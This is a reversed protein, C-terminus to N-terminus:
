THPTPKPVITQLRPTANSGPQETTALHPTHNAYCNSSRCKCSRAIALAVVLGLITTTSAAAMEAVVIDMTEHPFLELSIARIATSWASGIAWLASFSAATSLAGLADGRATQEYFNSM